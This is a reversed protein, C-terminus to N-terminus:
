QEKDFLGPTEAQEQESLQNRLKGAMDDVEKELVKSQQMLSYNKTRFFDKQTKRMQVVLEVFRKVDENKVM